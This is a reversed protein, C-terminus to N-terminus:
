ARWNRSALLCFPVLIGIHPKLCLFGLLIGAIIPRKMSLGLGGILLAATWAGNQGFGFNIIAAPSIVALLTRFSGAGLAIMVLALLLISGAMYIAFSWGLSLKSLPFAILLMTPPYSWEHQELKDGFRSREWGSFKEQSFIDRAPSEEIMKGGAWLNVFDWVPLNKNIKTIGYLGDKWNILVKPVSLISCSILM